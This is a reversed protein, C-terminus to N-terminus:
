FFFFFFNNRMSIRRCINDTRRYSGPACECINNKCEVTERDFGFNCQIDDDCPGGLDSLIRCKGQIYTFGEVCTCVGSCEFGNLMHACQVSEQCTEGHLSEKICQTVDSSFVYGAPCRCNWTNPSCTAEPVITCNTTSDCPWTISQYEAFFM